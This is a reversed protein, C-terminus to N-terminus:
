KEAGSTAMRQEKVSRTIPMAVEVAEDDKSDAIFALWLAHLTQRKRNSLADFQAALQMAENSPASEWLLSETSTKYLRALERLRYIGPDGRGTEWASVTAKNLSFRAAVEAQSLGAIERAAKLRLGVGVRESHLENSM